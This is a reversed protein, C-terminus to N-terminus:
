FFKSMESLIRSLNDTDSVAICQDIPVAYFPGHKSEHEQFEIAKSVPIWYWTKFHFEQNSFVYWVQLNCLKQLDNYRQTENKDVAFNSLHPFKRHKLLFQM